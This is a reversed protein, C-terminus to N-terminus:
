SRRSASCAARPMSTPCLWGTGRELQEGFWALGGTIPGAVGILVDARAPGSLGVAFMVVALTILRRM